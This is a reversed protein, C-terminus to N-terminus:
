FLPAPSIIHHLSRNLNSDRSTCSQAAMPFLPLGSSCSSLPSRLESSSSSSMNETFLPFQPISSIPSISPSLIDMSIDSEPLPSKLQVQGFCFHKKISVLHLVSTCKFIKSDSSYFINFDCTGPLASIYQLSIYDHLKLFAPHLHSLYTAILSAFM